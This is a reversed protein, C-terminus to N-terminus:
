NQPRSLVCCLSLDLGTPLSVPSVTKLAHHCAFPIRFGGYVALCLFWPWCHGLVVPFSPLSGPYFTISFIYCFSTVLSTLEKTAKCSMSCSQLLAQSVCNHGSLEKKHISLQPFLIIINYKNHNLTNDLLTESSLCRLVLWSHQM